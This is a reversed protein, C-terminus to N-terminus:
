ESLLMRDEAPPLFSADFIDEARLTNELGYADEVSAISRQLFDMDVTSIGEAVVLDTRLMDDITIQWREREVVPDTLSEHAVLAAIAGDPDADALQVGRIMCRTVTAVVEPNAEAFARTTLVSTSVLEAGYDAYYFIRLDDRGLGLAELSPVSSTVFGTIGDVEGRVLMPERLEPSVSMWNVTTHDFGAAAGFVPFLQRGADFDPAALTRGELDAPTEIGSDARVVAVMPTGAFLIATAIVDSDPNEARFRITPNLDGLGMQYTGTALEVPTRGSGFGRDLTINVGGDAFCGENRAMLAFAQPGQWAWDMIFSVNTQAAVPAALIAAAGALASLRIM